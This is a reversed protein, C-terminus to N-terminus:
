HYMEVFKKRLLVGHIYDISNIKRYINEFNEKLQLDNKETPGDFVFFWFSSVENDPKTSFLKIFGDADDLILDVLKNRFLNPADADWEGNLAINFVKLYLETKNVGVPSFFFNLHEVYVSYLLKKGTIDDYGYLDIFENFSNPFLNLFGPYDSKKYRESLQNAKGELTDITEPLQKVGKWSNLNGDKNSHCSIIVLGGIVILLLKM